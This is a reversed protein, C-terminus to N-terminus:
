YQGRSRVLKEIIGRKAYLFIERIWDPTQGRVSSPFKSKGHSKKKKRVGFTGNNVTILGNNNNNVNESRTPIASLDLLDSGSVTNSLNPQQPSSSTMIASGGSHSPPPVRMHPSRPKLPPPSLPSLIRGMKGNSNGGNATTPNTPTAVPTVVALQNAQKEDQVLESLTDIISLTKVSAKQMKMM